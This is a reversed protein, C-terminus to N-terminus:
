DSIPPDTNKLNNLRSEEIEPIIRNLLSLEKSLYVMRKFDFKLSAKLKERKRRNRLSILEDLNELNINAYTVKLNRELQDFYATSAYAIRQKKREERDHLLFATPVVGIKYGHYRVRQCYNDDEGYHFFLPDFGGVTKLIEKSLLWGAANVFPVAYVQRKHKNLVFDSYFDENANYNVYNSFNQDLKNGQGNLHIPSLIGYDPNDKRVSILREICDEQLYADQNLLFVYEAGQNLAYSIGLNNAQGFGLNTTQQLLTADPYHSEIFSVTEDSSHNDVVVVPYNKSSALCKELWTMGNYTVIIIHTNTM